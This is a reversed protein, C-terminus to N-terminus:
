GGPRSLSSLRGVQVEDSRILATRGHGYVGTDSGFFSNMGVAGLKKAEKVQRVAAPIDDLNVVGVWKLREQGSLVDGLWRNYADCM